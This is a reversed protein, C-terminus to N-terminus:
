ESFTGSKVYYELPYTSIRESQTTPSSKDTKSDGNLINDILEELSEQCLNESQKEGLKTQPSDVTDTKTTLSSNDEQSTNSYESDDDLSESSDNLDFDEKEREYSREQENARLISIEISEMNVNQLKVKIKTNEYGTQILKELYKKILLIWETSNIIKNNSLLELLQRISLTRLETEIKDVNEESEIMIIYNEVEKRLNDLLNESTGQQTNVKIIRPKKEKRRIPGLSEEESNDEHNANRKHKMHDNYYKSTNPTSTRKKDLSTQVGCLTRQFNTATNPELKYKIEPLGNNKLAEELKKEFVGQNNAEDILALTIITNIASQQPTQNITIPFEENSNINMAKRILELDRNEIENVKLLKEREIMARERLIERKKPCQRHDLSTHTGRVKCAACYRRAKQEENMNNIEKPITCEYFKHGREGCKICIKINTCSQSNHMPNITGCEWCQNITPDIEPEKSNSSLRIGGINVSEMKLFKQAQTRSKMEIKFSKNSKMIYVDKVKWKQQKLIDIINNKSYTTLLTPDFNTCFITRCAKLSLPMKPVFRELKIEEEHEMVKDIDAETPFIVKISNRAPTYFHSTTIGKDQLINNLNSKIRANNEHMSGQTYDERQFKFILKLAM